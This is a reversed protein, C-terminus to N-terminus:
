KENQSSLKLLIKQLIRYLNQKDESSIFSLFLKIKQNRSRIVKNITNKIKPSLEILISRKDKPNQFRKIIKQKELKDILVSATPMTVKLNKAVEQVTAPKKMISKLLTLERITFNCNQKAFKLHDHDASALQHM